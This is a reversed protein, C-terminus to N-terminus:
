APPSCVRTMSAPTSPGGCKAGSMGRSCLRRRRRCWCRHSGCPWRGRGPWRPPRRPRSRWRGAAGGHAFPLTSPMRPRPPEAPVVMPVAAMRARGKPTGLSITLVRALPWTLCYTPTRSMQMICETTSILPRLRMLRVTRALAAPAMIPMTRPCARPGHLRPRPDTVSGSM